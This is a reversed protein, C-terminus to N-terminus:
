GHRLQPRSRGAKLGHPSVGHSSCSNEPYRRDRSRKKNEGGCGWARWWPVDLEGFCNTQGQLLIARELDGVILDLLIFLLFGTRAGTVIRYQRIFRVYQM